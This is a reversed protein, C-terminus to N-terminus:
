VAGLYSCLKPKKEKNKSKQLLASFHNLSQNTKSEDSDVDIKITATAQRNEDQNLIRDGYM